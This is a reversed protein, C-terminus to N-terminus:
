NLALWFAAREQGGAADAAGGAVRRGGVAGPADGAVQRRQELVPGVPAVARGGGTGGCPHAQGVLSFFSSRLRECLLVFTNKNAKAHVAKIRRAGGVLHDLEAADGGLDAGGEELAVDGGGGVEAVHLGVGGGALHQAVQAGQGQVVLGLGGALDQEVQRPALADPVQRLEVERVPHAGADAALLLDGVHVVDPSLVAPEVDGRCLHLAFCLSIPM